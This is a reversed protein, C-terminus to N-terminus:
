DYENRLCSELAEICFATTLAESAIGVSPHGIDWALYEPWSGDPRQSDVFRELSHRAERTKLGGIMDLATIAQATLLIDGFNGRADGCDRIRAALAPKLDAFAPKAYVSARAIAYYLAMSDPYWASRRTPSGAEISALVWRQANRTEPHDGLYAITNANVILDADSRFIPLVEPENKASMWTLFRGEDDQYKLIRDVNRGTLFWPHPGLALSCLSTSDLDPPLHRWYRWVGPYEVSNLLYARTRIRLTKARDDRCRKLALAGLASLFPTREWHRPGDPNSLMYRVSPWIGDEKIATELFALGRQTAVRGAEALAERTRPKTRVATAAHEDVPPRAPPAPDYLTKKLFAPSNGSTKAEEREAKSYRSQAPLVLHATTATEEHVEIDHDEALTVGLEQEITKKPNEILRSRFASNDEAKAILEERLQLANKMPQLHIM